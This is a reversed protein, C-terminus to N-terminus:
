VSPRSGSGQSLEQGISDEEKSLEQGASDEWDSPEPSSGVEGQHLGQEMCEEWDSFEQYHHAEGQSLEQMSCEDWSSLEECSSGDGQSLEQQLSEEWNTIKQYRRVDGWKSLERDMDSEWEEEVNVFPGKEETESLPLVSGGVTKVLHGSLAQHEALKVAPDPGKAEQLEGQHDPILTELIILEM